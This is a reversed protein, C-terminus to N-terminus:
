APVNPATAVCERPMNDVSSAVQLYFIGLLRAFTLFSFCYSLRLFFPMDFDRAALMALEGPADFRPPFLAPEDRELFDVPEPEPPL